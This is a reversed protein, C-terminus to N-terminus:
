RYKRDDIEKLKNYLFVYGEYRRRDIKGLSVQRKINCVSESENIHNCDDYDCRFEDFEKYYEKLKKPEIDYLEYSSFGPTDLIFTSDEIEFLSAKKTTHRGRKTKKAIENIKIEGNTYLSVISSKGVGSNGSFASIKGKLKEKLVYTGINEKASTIIVEIGLNKYIKEIYEVDENKNEVLDFKNLCIIPTIKKQYCLIIQKDLLIYDPKPDKLSVVIVLNDINSVRPRILQNKRPMVKEIMYKDYINSVEVMDGILVSDNKKVNGRVTAVVKKNNGSLIYTDLNIDVVRLIEKELM